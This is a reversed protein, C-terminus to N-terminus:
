EQYLIYNKLYNNRWAQNAQANLAELTPKFDQNILDSNEIIVPNLENHLSMTFPTLGAYILLNRYDEENNTACIQTYFGSQKLSNILCQTGLGKEGQLYGHTNILLIANKNLCKKLTILSEETIIHSPQEEAKFVDVIIFDYHENDKNIFHRADDCIVKISDNLFFYRKSIQIIREDFEVSTVQYGEQHLLNSVLGGGLGLVLAKGKPIYHLNKQILQTYETSAQKTTFNMETQVINNVLLLRNKIQPNVVNPEDRVEITGLIGEKKYVTFRNTPKTALKYFSISVFLLLFFIISKSKKKILLPISTFALFLAFIYLTYAIGLNPILYFGCLFTAVIGGLTSIAYIKGSTVGSEEKSATLISIILPSAAGMGLTVPFLLIFVSIIVAPILSLSFALHHFIVTLMPMLFLCTISFLLVILLRQEKQHKSLQGGIFYGSALGSLTIAMVSSWVYLSSGFFPGLLKAGGIEAAMVSAGEVFSILLFPYRHLRQNM